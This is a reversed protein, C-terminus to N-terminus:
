AQQRIFSKVQQEFAELRQNPEIQSDGEPPSGFRLRMYEAAISQLPERWGSKQQSVRQTFSLIGEGPAKEIGQAKLFGLLKYMVKSLRDRVRPKWALKFWIFVSVLSILIIISTYLFYKPIQNLKLASLLDWQSSQNFDIIWERWFTNANDMWHRAYDVWNQEVMEVDPLSDFLWGRQGIEELLSPEIRSPAIASTPDVRIWGSGDLWYELWAHADRQMILYYDGIANYEGGQYGTIVRAPIGAARLMFVMSSAYHECFGRKHNFWFDDVMQEAMIPPQLTYYFPQQNIYRLLFDVYNKPDKIQAYQEQSWQVAQPNSNGPISLNIERAVSSLEPEIVSNLASTMQYRVRKNIDFRSVFTGDSRGRANADIEIPIDLGFLWRQRTAELTVFYSLLNEDEYDVTASIERRRPDARWTLGDYNEFVLGRWYLQAPLLTPEEIFKVRFAPDNSLNLVGIDGPTMSDSIGTGASSQGPMKWLPGPLRPFFLFMLIMLPLTWALLKASTRWNFALNEYANAKMLVLLLFGYAAFMYLLLWFSQTFLFSMSLVFFGLTLLLNLERYKWSELIKLSYMVAILAVGADKGRLTGFYRWVLVAVALTLGVLLWRNVQAKRNKLSCFLVWGPPLLILVAIVAPLSFLLPFLVVLQALALQKRRDISLLRQNEPLVLM